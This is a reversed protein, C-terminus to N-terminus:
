ICTLDDFLISVRANIVHGLPKIVHVIDMVDVTLPVISDKGDLIVFVHTTLSVYGMCVHHTVGVTVYMVCVM